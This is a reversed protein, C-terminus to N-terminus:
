VAELHLGLRQSLEMLSPASERDLWRFLYPRRPQKKETFAIVRRACRVTITMEELWGTGDLTAAPMDAYGEPVYGPQLRELWPRYRTEIPVPGHRSVSPVPETLTQSSVLYKRALEEKFGDCDFDSWAIDTRPAWVVRKDGLQKALEKILTFGELGAGTDCGLLRVHANRELCKGLGKLDRWFGSDTKLSICRSNGPEGLTLSGPHGHGYFDLRQIRIPQGSRYVIYKVRDLVEGPEDCRAVARECPASWGDMLPVADEIDTDVSAPYSVITLHM